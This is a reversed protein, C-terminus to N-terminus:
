RKLIVVALLIGAVAWAWWPVSFGGASGSGGGSVPQDNVQRGNMNVNNVFGRTGAGSGWGLNIPLQASVPAGSQAFPNQTTQSQDTLKVDYMAM